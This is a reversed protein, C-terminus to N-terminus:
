EYKKYVFSNASGDSQNLWHFGQLNERVPLKGKKREVPM